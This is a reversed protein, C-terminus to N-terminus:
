RIARSTPPGELTPRRQALEAVDAASLGLRNMGPDLHLLARGRGRWREVQELTNLV